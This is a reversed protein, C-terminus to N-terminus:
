LFVKINHFLIYLPIKSSILTREKEPYRYTVPYLSFANYFNNGSKLGTLHHSPSPSEINVFCSSSLESISCTSVGITTKHPNPVKTQAIGLQAQIFHQFKCPSLFLLTVFLITRLINNMVRPMFKVCPSIDFKIGHYYRKETGPCMILSLHRLITYIFTPDMYKEYHNLKLYSYNQKQLIPIFTKIIEDSLGAM